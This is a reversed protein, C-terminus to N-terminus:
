ENYCIVKPQSEIVRGVKTINRIEVFVDQYQGSVNLSHCRIADRTNDYEVIQRFLYGRETEIVWFSNLDNNINNRFSEISFSKVMLRDGDEFSSRTGNDMSDGKVEFAIMEQIENELQTYM